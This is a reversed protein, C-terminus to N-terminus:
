QKSHNLAQTNEKLTEIMVRNTILLHNKFENNLNSYLHFLYGVSLFLIIILFELPYKRLVSLKKESAVELATNVTVNEM